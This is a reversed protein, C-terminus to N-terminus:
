SLAGTKSCTLIVTKSVTQVVLSVLYRKATASAKAQNGSKSASKSAIKWNGDPAAATSQVLTKVSSEEFTTICYAGDSM